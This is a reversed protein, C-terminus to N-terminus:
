YSILDGRFVRRIQSPSSEARYIAAHKMAPVQVLTILTLYIKDKFGHFVHLPTPARPPPQHLVALPPVQCMKLTRPTM